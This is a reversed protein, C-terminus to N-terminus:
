VKIVLDLLLSVVEVKNQEIAQEIQHIKKETEGKLAQQQQTTGEMSADRFRKFSETKEELYADVEVKAEKKAQKLREKRETRAATVIKQAEKEAQLLRAIGEESQM